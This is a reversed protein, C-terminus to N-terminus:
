FANPDILKGDDIIGLRHHVRFDIAYSMMHASGDCFAMQFGNAHASGFRVCSDAGAQNQCPFYSSNDASPNECKDDLAVARATDIDSGQDWGQDDIDSLGNYYYDPNQYREGLLYTKSTGDTIDRLYTPVRRRIAGGTFNEHQYWWCYDNCADGKALTTPWAWDTSYTAYPPSYGGCAAYDCHGVVPPASITYFLTNGDAHFPYPIAPRCTPCHFTSVAIGVRVITKADAGDGLEHLRSQGIYPLISYNWGGPQRKGFGRSPFGVWSHNWGGSPLFGQAQEHALAGLGMQHLNNRCETQRASERAAQVAPLLLAILIGIITIVVLLEVLTFASSPKPKM